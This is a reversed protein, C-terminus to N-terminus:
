WIGRCRIRSQRHHPKFYQPQAQQSGQHGPRLHRHCGVAGTESVISNTFHQWATKITYQGEERYHHNGRDSSPSHSSNATSGSFRRKVRSRSRDPQSRMTEARQSRRMLDLPQSHPDRPTLQPGAPGTAQTNSATTVTVNSVANESQGQGSGSTKNSSMLSASASRIVVAKDTGSPSNIIGRASALSYISNNSLRRSYSESWSSRPTSTLAADLNGSTSGLDDITALLARQPDADEDPRLPHGDDTSTASAASQRRSHALLARTSKLQISGHTNTPLSARAPHIDSTGPEAHRSRTNTVSGIVAPISVSRTHGRDSPKKQSDISAASAPLETSDKNVSSPALTTSSSRPKSGNVSGTTTFSLPEM